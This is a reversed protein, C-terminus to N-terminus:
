GKEVQSAVMSPPSMGGRLSNSLSSSTSVLWGSDLGGGGGGVVVLSGPWKQRGLIRATSVRYVEGGPVEAEWTCLAYLRAARSAWGSLCGPFGSAM